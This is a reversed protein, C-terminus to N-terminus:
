WAVSPDRREPFFPANRRDHFTGERVRRERVDVKQVAREKLDADVFRRVNPAGEFFINALWLGAVHSVAWLGLAVTAIVTGPNDASGIVLVYPVALLASVALGTVGIRLWSARPSGQKMTEM